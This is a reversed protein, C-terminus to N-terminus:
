KENFLEKAATDFTSMSEAVIVENLVEEGHGQSSALIVAALLTLMNAADKPNAEITEHIDKMASLIDLGTGNSLPLGLIKPNEKIYDWIDKDQYANESESM